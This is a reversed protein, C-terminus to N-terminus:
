VVMFFKDQENTELDRIIFKMVVTM